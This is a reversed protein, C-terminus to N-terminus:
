LLEEGLGASKRGCVAESGRCLSFYLRRKSGPDQFDHIKDRKRRIKAQLKQFRHIPPRKQHSQVHM